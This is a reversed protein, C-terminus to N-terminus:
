VKVLFFVISIVVFIIAVILTEKKLKNNRNKNKELKHLYYNGNYIKKNPIVMSFLFKGLYTSGDFIGESMSFFLIYIIIFIIGTIITADSVCRYISKVNNYDSKNIFIIISSILIGIVFFVLFSKKNLKM